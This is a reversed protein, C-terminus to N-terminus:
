PAVVEGARPTAPLLPFEVDLGVQLADAVAALQGVTPNGRGAELAAIVPQSVKMREALQLQTLGVDERAARIRQGVLQAHIVSRRTRPMREADTPRRSSPPLRNKVAGAWQAEDPEFEEASVSVAGNRYAGPLGRAWEEGDKDFDILGGYRESYVPIGIQVFEPSGNTFKIEQGRVEFAAALRDVLEGDSRIENAYIRVQIM